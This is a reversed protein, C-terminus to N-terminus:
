IWFRDGYDYVNVPPNVFLSMACVLYFFVAVALLVFYSFCGYCFVLLVFAFLPYLKTFMGM